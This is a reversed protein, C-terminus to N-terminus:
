AAAPAPHLARDAIGGFYGAIIGIVLGVPAVLAVVAVVMGLTIRGGYLVRSLVDRGLEDTGFWHAWSSEALRNALDQAAPDYPAILPAAMALAILIVLTCLGWMALPNRRFELWLRYRRGWTAQKRSAPNESLLWDRRSMSAAQASM